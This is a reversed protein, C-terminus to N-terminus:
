RATFDPITLDKIPVVGAPYLDFREVRVEWNELHAWYAECGPCTEIPNFCKYQANPPTYDSAVNKDHRTRLDNANYTRAYMLADEEREFCCHVSYSSYEGSSIAYVSSNTM